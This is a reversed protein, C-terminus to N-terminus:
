SSSEDSGRITTGEYNTGPFEDEEKAWEYIWRESFDFKRGHQKWEKFESMATTAFGVCSNGAVMPKGNRRTLLLHNPVEVCYTKGAYNFIKLQKKTISLETQKREYIINVPYKGKAFHNEIWITKPSQIGVTAWKGTKLVLELLDDALQKSTTYYKRGAKKLKYGDGILYADLFIKIQRVSLNKVYNPIFKENVSGLPALESYLRKNYFVFSVKTKCFNFPLKSLFQEIIKRTNKKSAAICLRYHSSKCLDVWGEALYLGLFKLWSDMPIDQGRRIAYFKRQPKLKKMNPPIYPGIQVPKLHFFEVEKRRWKLSSDLAGGEGLDRVRISRFYEPIKRNSGKRKRLWLNHNPTILCDLTRGKLQYVQGTYDYCFYRIPQQFEIENSSPNVTAVKENRNLQSFKKWGASTLIETSEDHCGESGQDKVATLQSTWDIKEPLEIEPPPAALDRSDPPDPRYGFKFKM